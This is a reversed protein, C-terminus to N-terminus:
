DMEIFNRVIDAELRAMVSRARKESEDIKIFETLVTQRLEGLNPGIVARPSSVTVTDGKKVLVGGDIAVFVEDRDDVFSIVGPVLTTVFDIHRPLLCFEGNVAEATVKAAKRDLIIGGPILIRLRM